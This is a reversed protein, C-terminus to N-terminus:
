VIMFGIAFPEQGKHKNHRRYQKKSSIIQYKNFKVAFKAVPNHSPTFEQVIRSKNKKM